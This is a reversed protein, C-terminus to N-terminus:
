REAGTCVLCKFVAGVVNSQTLRYKLYSDCVREVNIFVDSKNFLFELMIFNLFTFDHCSVKKRLSM